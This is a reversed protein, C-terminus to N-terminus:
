EEVLSRYKGSFYILPEFDEINIDTVRGIFLTHDGEIHAASVECAIQAVAGDLVPVEGLREFKVEQHNKQQGAFIMSLDQQSSSLINVSFKGSQNIKELMQARESISVVVLKPSLSVSMFANATMGHVSGEVETAVVTVGTAFKGMANRFQRDDM